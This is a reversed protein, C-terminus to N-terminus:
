SKSVCNDRVQHPLTREIRYVSNEKKRNVECIVLEGVANHTITNKTTYEDCFIMTLRQMM